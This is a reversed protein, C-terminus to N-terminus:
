NSLIADGAVFSFPFVEIHINKNTWDVKEVCKGIFLQFRDFIDYARRGGSM